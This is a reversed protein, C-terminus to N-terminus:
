PDTYTVYWPLPMVRYQLCSATNLEMAVLLCVRFGGVMKLAKTKGYKKATKSMREEEFNYVLSDFVDDVSHETEIATRLQKVSSWPVDRHWVDVRGLKPFISCLRLTNPLAYM